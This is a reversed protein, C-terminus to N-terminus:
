PKHSFYKLGINRAENFASKTEFSGEEILSNSVFSAKDMCMSLAACKEANRQSKNSNENLTEIM